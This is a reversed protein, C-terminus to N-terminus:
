IDVMELPAPHSRTLFQVHTERRIAKTLHNTSDITSIPKASHEIHTQEAQFICWQFVANNLQTHNLITQDVPCGSIDLTFGLWKASSVFSPLYASESVGYGVQPNMLWSLRREMAPCWPQGHSVVQETFPRQFVTLQPVGDMMSHTVLSLWAKELM